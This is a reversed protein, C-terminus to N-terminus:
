DESKSRAAASTSLLAEVEALRSRFYRLDLGDPPQQISEIEIARLYEERAADPDGSKQWARGLLYHGFSSEPYRKTVEEFVTRAEEMREAQLHGGGLSTLVPEPIPVAYGYQNSLDQYYQEIRARGAEVVEDPALWDSYLARIARYYALPLSQNHGAGEIEIFTVELGEVPREELQKAFKTAATHTWGGEEESGITMMLRIPHELPGPPSESLLLEEEWWISPSIGLYADFLEPTQMMTYITFLGGFSWGGLVRHDETRYTEDIFPILERTLFQLFAAAEGSTPFEMGKYEPVHTPTFDRDRDTNEIGVVILEPVIIDSAGCESLYRVQSAVVPFHWNGDLLYLVPYSRQSQRYSAPLSVYVTRLEDLIDSRLAVTDGLHTPQSWVVTPGLWLTALFAWVPALRTRRM